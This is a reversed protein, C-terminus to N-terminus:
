FLPSLIGDYFIVLTYIMHFLFSSNNRFFIVLKCFSSNWHNKKILNPNKAFFFWYFWSFKKSYIVIKTTKESLYHNIWWLFVLDTFIINKCITLYSWICFFTFIFFHCFAFCCFAISICIHCDVFKDLLSM